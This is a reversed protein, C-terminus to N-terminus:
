DMPNPGLVSASNPNGLSLDDFSLRQYSRFTSVSIGTESVVHLKITIDAAALGDFLANLQAEVENKDFLTGGDMLALVNADYPEGALLETKPHIDIYVGILEEAALRLYKRLKEKNVAKSFRTNFETPLVLRLYRAALWSRLTDCDTPRLEMKHAPEFNLLISKNIAIKKSALLEIPIDNYVSSDSTREQMELHLKRPNRSNIFMKNVQDTRSAIMFEVHPDDQNIKHAIDCSHSAAILFDKEPDLAAGLLACIETFDSDKIISGQRWGLRELSTTGAM